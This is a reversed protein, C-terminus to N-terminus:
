FFFNEEIGKNFVFRFTVWDRQYNWYLHPLLFIFILLFALWFYPNKLLMRAKKDLLIWFFVIMAFLGIIYKSLFGLAFFLATCFLWRKQQSKIWRGLSGLTLFWFFNYVQEFTWFQSFLAYYITASLILLYFFSEKKSLFSRAMWYAAILVLLSSFVGGWKIAFISNDIVLSALKMWYAIMPANNAYGWAIKKSWGWHDLSDPHIPFFFSITSWFGLYCLFFLYLLKQNKPITM